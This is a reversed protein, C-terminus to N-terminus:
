EIKTQKKDCSKKKKKKRISIICRFSYSVLVIWFLLWFRSFHIKTSTVNLRQIFLTIFPFVIHVHLPKGSSLNNTPFCHWVTDCIPTEEKKEVLTWLTKTLHMNRNCYRFAENVMSRHFWQYWSWKDHAFWDSSNITWM